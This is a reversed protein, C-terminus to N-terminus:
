GGEGLGGATRRQPDGGDAGAALTPREAREKGLLTVWHHEGRQMGLLELVEDGAGARRRLRTRDTLRDLEAVDEQDDHGISRDLLDALVVALREGRLLEDDVDRVRDRLAVARRDDVPDRLLAPGAAAACPRPSGTPTGIAPSSGFAMASAVRSILSIPKSGTGTPPSDIPLYRTGPVGSPPSCEGVSIRCITVVRFHPRAGTGLSVYRRPLADVRAQTSPLFPSRM